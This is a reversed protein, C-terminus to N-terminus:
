RRRSSFDLVGRAPSGTLLIILYGRVLVVTAAGDSSPGLYTLAACNHSELRDSHSKEDRARPHLIDRSQHTNKRTSMQVYSTCIVDSSEHTSALATEM